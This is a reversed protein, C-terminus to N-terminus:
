DNENFNCQDIAAHNREFWADGESASFKDKQKQSM